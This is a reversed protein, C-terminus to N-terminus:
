RPTVDEHGLLHPKVWTSKGSIRNHYFFRREKEDWHKTYMSRVLVRMQSRAHWRRYSRQIALAALERMRRRAHTRARQRKALKQAYQRKEIESAEEYWAEIDESSDSDAEAIAYKSPSKKGESGPKTPSRSSPSRRPQLVEVDAGDPAELGLIVPRKWTAKRTRENYYYWSKSVPDQLKKWQARALAQVRSKCRFIRWIRQIRCAAEFNRMPDGHKRPGHLSKLHGCNACRFLNLPHPRFGGRRACIKCQRCRPFVINTVLADEDEPAM